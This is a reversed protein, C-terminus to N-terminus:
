EPPSKQYNAPWVVKRQYIVVRKKDRRSTAVKIAEELTAHWSVREALEGGLYTEYVAYPPLTEGEAELEKTM